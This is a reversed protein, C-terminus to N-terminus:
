IWPKSLIDTGIHNNPVTALRDKVDVVPYLRKRFDTGDVIGITSRVLDPGVTTKVDHDSTGTSVVNVGSGVVTSVNDHSVASFDEEETILVLHNLGDFAGCGGRAPAVFDDHATTVVNDDATRVIIEDVVGALSELNFPIGTGIRDDPITSLCDEIKIVLSRAADHTLNAGDCRFMTSIVQDVSSISRVCDETSHGIVRDITSGIVATIDDHAIISIGQEVLVATQDLHARIIMGVASAVHDGTPICRIINETTIITVGDRGITAM